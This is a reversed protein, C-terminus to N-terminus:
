PARMCDSGDWDITGICPQVVHEIDSVFGTYRILAFARIRAGPYAQAVMTAAALLTRGKTVIDDILVINQTVDLQQDTMQFSAYHIQVTPRQGPVAYASKPVAFKRM